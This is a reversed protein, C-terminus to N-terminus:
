RRLSKPFTRYKGALVQAQKEIGIGLREGIKDIAAQSKAAVARRMFPNAPMQGAHEVFVWNGGLNVWHPKKFTRPGTGFEVLHAHPVLSSPGVQYIDNTRRKKRVIIEDKLHRGSKRKPDYPALRRAEKAIITGGSRVASAVVKKRMVFPLDKLLKDIERAGLIQFKADM